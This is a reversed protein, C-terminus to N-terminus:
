SGAHYDLGVDQAIFGTFERELSRVSLRSEDNAKRM